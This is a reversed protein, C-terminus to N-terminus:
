LKSPYIVPKVLTAIESSMISALMLVGAHWESRQFFPIKRVAFVIATVVLLPLLQLLVIPAPQLFQGSVWEMNSPFNAPLTLKLVELFLGCVAYHAIFTYSVLSLYRRQLVDKPFFASAGLLALFCFTYAAIPPMLMDFDSAIKIDASEFSQRPHLASYILVCILFALASCFGPLLLFAFRLRTLAQLNTM